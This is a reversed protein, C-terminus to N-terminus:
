NTALARMTAVKIVTYIKKELHSARTAGLCDNKQKLNLKERWSEVDYM